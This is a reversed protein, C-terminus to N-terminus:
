IETSWDHQELLTRLKDLFAGSYGGDIARHDFSQSLIGIPRIGITDGLSSEIVVPRKKIADVSLIAVQPQNIIPATMLTGFSGNNTLTYTGGTLDDATLANNRARGSVDAIRKALGSVTLDGADRIIPAVLGELGLSVAFSLNISRHIVLSEGDVSSNIRPFERIALCTARAIFPLYTLSFGNAARWSERAPRRVKDVSSFDVEMSQLVHPSTAKSRVMHEATLRRIRDFPVREGDSYQTAAPQRAVAPPASAASAAVPSASQQADAFALVDNRTIRGDRGSGTIQHPDLQHEAILRRVVPSLRLREGSEAVQPTEVAPQRLTPESAEPAAEVTIAPSQKQAASEDRETPANSPQVAAQSDGEEAADPGNIVALIVGVDVTQGEEVNIATIVGAEPAPVETAAKDTEVDLIIEDKEVTDGVKKHWAAITGEAVTEGLQPMLVNM